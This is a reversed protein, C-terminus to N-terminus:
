VSDMSEFIKVLLKATAVADDVARHKSEHVINFHKTLYPLNHQHLHKFVKRSMHLTDLQELEDFYIGLSKGEAKIFSFDFPINHAVLTSDQVFKYFDALVKDIKPKDKVDIDYIHHVNSAGSPIPIGPNVLSSFSKTFVGNEIKIAGIEVIKENNPNLGTTELDFVVFTKNLFGAAVRKPAEFLSGQALEVYDTPFITRYESDVERIYRNEVFNDDLTCYSIDRTMFVLGGDRKKDPELNGRITIQKGQKLLTIKDVDKKSPFYLADISATYDTITLKYFSKDDGTKKDKYNIQQLVDLKGCVTVDPSAIKADEIYMAKSYIPRGILADINKPTIFRGGFNELKVTPVPATNGVELEEEKRVFAFAIEVFYNRLLFRDVWTPLERDICYDYVQSDVHVSVSLEKTDIIIDDKDILKAISPYSKLFELFEAKFYHADFHSKILKVEIDASSALVKKAAYEIATKNQNVDKEFNEDFLLHIEVKKLRVNCVIDKLKIFPYENKTYTHFKENFRKM